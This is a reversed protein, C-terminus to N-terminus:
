GITSRINGMLWSNVADFMPKVPSADTPYTQFAVDLGANKMERITKRTSELPLVEDWVGHLVLFKLRRSEHFRSLYPIDKPLWGHISIVGAFRDPFSLALRYAMAAGEGVGMLYVRKAHVSLEQQMKRIQDLIAFEGAAIPDSIESRILYRFKEANSLSKWSENSEIGQSEPQFWGFQNHNPLNVLGRPCFGVFNRDSVKQLWGAAQIENGGRGHLGVVLPYQYNPEYGSPVITAGVWGNSRAAPEMRIASRLRDSTM